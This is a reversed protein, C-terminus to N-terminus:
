VAKPTLKKVGDLHKLILYYVFVDLIAGGMLMDTFVRISVAMVFFLWSIKKEKFSYFMERVFAIIVILLAILGYKM